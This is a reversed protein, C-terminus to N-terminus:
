LRHFRGALAVLSGLVLLAALLRHGAAPDTRGTEPLLPAVPTATPTPTLALPTATATPAPQDKKKPKPTATPTPAPGIVTIPVQDAGGAIDNDYWDSAGTVEARNITDDTTALATFVTTVSIAAHAPVNGTWVTLDTWTLTGGAANVLDPPPVAYSFALLAPDYTDVLPVVTMTTFGDNTIIVTFTLPQGVQPLLGALLEKDVPSSGGVADAGDDISTTGSLAGGAGLADHVEAANVVAPAPHEAIFGVVVVIQGGPLVDGFYTTLDTWDIQGAGEDIVDPPPVADAYALVGANYMDSLPLTTVTFASDNRILITFTLYEGVHVVPDTRGLQKDVYIDDGAQARASQTSLVLGLAALAFAALALALILRHAQRSDMNM